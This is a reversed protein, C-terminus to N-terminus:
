GIDKKYAFFMFTFVVWIVAFIGRLATDWRGIDFISSSFEFYIFSFFLTCTTYMVIFTLVVCYLFLFLDGKMFKNLKDKFSKKKLNLQM